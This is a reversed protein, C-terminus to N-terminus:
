MFVSAHMERERDCVCVCVCVYVCVYVAACAFGLGTGKTHESHTSAQTSESSTTIKWMHLRSGEDGMASSLRELVVLYFNEEFNSMQWTSLSHVGAAIVVAQEFM